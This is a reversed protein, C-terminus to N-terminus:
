LPNRAKLKEKVTETLGLDFVLRSLVYKDRIDRTAEFVEPLNDTAIGLEEPSSPAGLKKLLRVLYEQSPIEQRIIERIKEWHELIAQLHTDCRDRTYKREKNEELAIMTEAGNGLLARLQKKYSEYTFGRFADEAKQHDPTYSLLDHYIGSAIVTAVACQYGHTSSSTGFELARMDWVHSIYHEMGSAPRSSNAYTMAMGATVLGDFVARVSDRDGSLLGDANDICTKLASRIMQAINECYDEGVVLSAIRWECIGIYKALMDGLGSLRLYLPSEALIDLDGVIVDACKSPLSIKLGQREMSSSSSAYGDMSPATAVIIYPLNATRSLLKGIDNIVGSGIGIVADCDTDFHMVASGVAREDPAPSKSFSHQSYSIGSELLIKEVQEGAARRTNCDSLLFPKKSGLERLIHPLRQIAGCETYVKVNVTNHIRGCECVACNENQM